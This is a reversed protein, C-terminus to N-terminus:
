PIIKKILVLVFLFCNIRVMGPIFDALSPLASHIVEPFLIM